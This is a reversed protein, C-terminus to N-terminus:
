QLPIECCYTICFKIPFLSNHVVPFYLICKSSEERCDLNRALVGECAFNKGITSMITPFRETNNIHYICICHLCNSVIFLEQYLFCIVKTLHGWNAEDLTKMKKFETM